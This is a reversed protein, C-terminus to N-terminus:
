RGVLEQVAPGVSPQVFRFGAQMLEQPRCRQSALLLADAMEGFIARLAFAPVPLFAPRHLAKALAQTFTANRVPEPAVALVPGRLDGHEFAFRIVRLLDGLTIWSLWQRGSGLRGGLGLRFPTLMKALAGGGRGLVM